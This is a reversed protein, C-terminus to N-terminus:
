HVVSVVSYSIANDQVIKEAKDFDDKNQMKVKTKDIIKYQIKNDDLLKTFEEVDNQNCVIVNETNYIDNNRQIYPMAVLFAVIIINIIVIGIAGVKTKRNVGKTPEVSNNDINKIIYIKLAKILLSFTYIVIEVFFFLIILFIISLWNIMM